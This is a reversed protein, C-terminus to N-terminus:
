VERADNPTSEGQRITGVTLIHITVGVLVVVLALRVVMEDTAFAAALVIGLWLLGLTWLKSGRTMGRGELYNKLYSGVLRNSLLAGYLRQSSRTYCFAALLLFPTTPLVPLFVGVAGVAVFVTGAVILTWRKLTDSMRTSHPGHAYQSDAIRSWSQLVLDQGTACCFPPRVPSRPVAAATYDSPPITALRAPIKGIATTGPCEAAM